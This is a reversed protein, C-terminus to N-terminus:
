YYNIGMATSKRDTGTAIFHLIISHAVATDNALPSKAFYIKQWEHKGLFVGFRPAIHSRVDKLTDM